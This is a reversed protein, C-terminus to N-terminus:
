FTLEGLVSISHLGLHFGLLSKSTSMLLSIWIKYPFTFSRSYGSYKQFLLVQTSPCATESKSTTLSYYGPCHPHLMFVSTPQYYPIPSRSISRFFIALWISAPVRQEADKRSLTQHKGTNQMNAIKIPTCHYKMKMQM